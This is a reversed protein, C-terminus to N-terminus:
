AARKFDQAPMLPVATDGDTVAFLSVEPGDLFEEIVVTGCAAAHARAAEVDTTVLVGKGAALADDKVM